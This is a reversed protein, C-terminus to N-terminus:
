ATAKGAAKDEMEKRKAAMYSSIDVKKGSDPAQNTPTTIKPSAKFGKLSNLLKTTKEKNAIYDNVWESKADANIKGANVAQNIVDEAETKKARNEAEEKESKMTNYGQNLANLADDMEKDTCDEKLGLKIAMEKRSNKLNEIEEEDKENHVIPESVKNKMDKIAQLIQADTATETLGVALAFQKMDNPTNYINLIASLKKYAAEPKVKSSLKPIPSSEQEYVEDILNMELAKEVGIWTTNDMITSMEDESVGVVPCLMKILTDKMEALEKSDGGSPNHMMIKGHPVMKREKGAQMIVSAMSIAMGVCITDVDTPCDKIANWMTMGDIISGGLSHIRVQIRKKGLTGLFGLEDAWDKGNIGTTRGDEDRTQGIIDYVEMVPVEAEYDKCYGM